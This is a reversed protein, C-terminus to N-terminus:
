TAQPGQHGQALVLGEQMDVIRHSAQTLPTGDPREQQFSKTGTVAVTAYEVCGGPESSSTLSSEIIGKITRTPISYRLGRGHM